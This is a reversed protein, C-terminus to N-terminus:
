IVCIIGFDTIPLVHDKKMLSEFKEIMALNMTIGTPHIMWTPLVSGNLNEIFQVLMVGERDGNFFINCPLNEQLASDFNCQCGRAIPLPILLLIVNLNIQAILNLDTEQTIDINRPLTIKESEDKKKDLDHSRERKTQKSSVSVPRSHGEEEENPQPNDIVRHNGSYIHKVLTTDQIYGANVIDQNVTICRIRSFFMAAETALQGPRFLIQQLNQRSLVVLKNFLYLPMLNEYTKMESSGILYKEPEHRTIYNFGRLFTLQIFDDDLPLDDCGEHTRSQVLLMLLRYVQYCSETDNRDQVLLYNIRRLCLIIRCVAPSAFGYYNITGQSTPFACILGRVPLLCIDGSSDHFDSDSQFFSVSVEQLTSLKPVLLGGVQQSM